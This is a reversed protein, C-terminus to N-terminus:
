DGRPQRDTKRLLMHVESCARHRDFVSQLDDIMPAFRTQWYEALTGQDAATQRLTVIVDRFLDTVDLGFWWEAVRQFGFEDCFFNISSETYLHTHGGALHRPMVNPFVAELAVTPSFLPVSMYMYRIQPNKQVAALAHRPERLHELVGIFSAVTTGATEILGITEDMQHLRVAGEGLMRNGFTVLTESPEYGTVREFGCARAAGVFYGAGAGFDTISVAAISEGNEALAERLFKAKPVYVEEMREGFRRVDAETYGQAYEAGGGATYLTRTFAETDEHGGNMHGCRRCFYYAVGLKAFSPDSSRMAEDCNKCRTRVPQARYRAATELLAALNRDNEDFFSRKFNLLKGLPKSYRIV